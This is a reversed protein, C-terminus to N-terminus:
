GCSEVIASLYQSGGQYAISLYSLTRIGHTTVDSLVVAM